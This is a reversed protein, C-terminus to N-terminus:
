DPTGDGNVDAVAVSVGGHFGADYANFRMRLTGDANFMQVLPARGPGSGVAYLTGVATAGVHTNAQAATPTPQVNGVNDTAVSYFGYTHGVVGTFTASTQTTNQLFPTFPGGNDSVFISFTAIGSGGADDSGAWSVTFSTGTSVAPLPNVSSTPAGADITNVATPTALPANTDFVISAQQTVVTGTA